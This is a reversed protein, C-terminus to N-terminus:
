KNITKIQIQKQKTKNQKTKMTAKSLVSAIVHENNEVYFRIYSFNEISFINLRFCAYM